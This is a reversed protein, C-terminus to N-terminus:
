ELIVSAPLMVSFTSGQGTKSSVSVEGGMVEVLRRTISLGLGSGKRDRGPNKLQFFEDFIRPLQEAEIGIGSDTVSIRLRGDAMREAGVQVQGAETFKIANGALNGLVRSLKVRDMRVRIPEIERCEFRLKKQEALPQLQRCEDRLWQGIEFEAEHLEVKGADLRSLDLVDSVLHVLSLSSHQLERALEPIESIDKPDSATRFILEALLNIANAPSRIDHSVVALFRSKRASSEEAERRRRDFEEQLQKLPTIDVFAAVAAVIAGGRDRIPSASILADFRGGNHLRLEFAADSSQEGRLARALPYDTTEVRQDDRWVTAEEGIAYLKDPQNQSLALMRAGAPNLYFRNQGASSMAIGLPITDLMTQLRQKQNELELSRTELRAQFRVLLDVVFAVLLTDGILLSINVIRQHMPTPSIPNIYFIKIATMAIFICVMGWILRRNRTWAGVALPVGFGIPISRHAYVDLRLWAMAAVLVTCLLVAFWLPPPTTPSANDPSDM